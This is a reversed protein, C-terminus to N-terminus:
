RYTCARDRCSARGIQKSPAGTSGATHESLHRAYIEGTIAKMLLQGASPEPNTIVTSRQIGSDIRPKGPEVTRATDPDHTGALTRRNSARVSMRSPKLDLRAAIENRAAPHPHKGHRRAGHLYAM